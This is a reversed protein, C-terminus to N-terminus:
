NTIDSEVNPKKRNINRNNNINDPIGNNLYEVALDIRGNAAKVAAEVQTKEFGMDILSDIQIKLNDNLIQSINPKNSPEPQPKAQFNSIEPKPNNTKINQIKKTKINMMIITSNETIKYDSLHYSDELIVGNSILKIEESDFSYLKEIEIKLDKVTIENSEIYIEYEVQKLSKLLLKM